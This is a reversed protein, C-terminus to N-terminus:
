LDADAPHAPPNHSPPFARGSTEGPRALTSTNRLRGHNTVDDWNTKPETASPAQQRLAHHQLARPSKPVTWGVCESSRPPAAGSPHRTCPVVSGLRRAPAATGSSPERNRGRSQLSWQAPGTSHRGNRAAATTVPSDTDRVPGGGRSIRRRTRGPHAIHPTFSRGASPM